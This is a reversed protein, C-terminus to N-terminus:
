VLDKSSKKFDFSVKNAKSLSDQNYFIAGRKLLLHAESNFAKFNTKLNLLSDCLNKAKRLENQYIYHQILFRSKSAMLDYEGLDSALKIYFRLYKEQEHSNARVLETTLQDLITFKESSISTNEYATKLSDIKSQSHALGSWLLFVVFCFRMM